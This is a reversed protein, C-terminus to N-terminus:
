VLSIIIKERLITELVFLSFLSVIKTLTQCRQSCQGTGDVRRGREHLSLDKEIKLQFTNAHSVLTDRGAM